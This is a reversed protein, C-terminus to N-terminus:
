ISYFCGETLHIVFLDKVILRARETWKISQNVHMVVISM